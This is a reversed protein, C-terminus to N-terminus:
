SSILESGTYFGRVFGSAGNKDKRKPWDWVAYWTWGSYNEDKSQLVYGRVVCAILCIRDLNDPDVIIDSIGAIYGKGGTINKWHKGDESM